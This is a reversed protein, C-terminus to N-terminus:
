AKLGLISNLAFEVHDALREWVAGGIDFTLWEFVVM